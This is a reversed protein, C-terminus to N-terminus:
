RGTNCLKIITQLVKDKTTAARVEELTIASPVSTQSIFEVYEEAIKEERSSRVDKTAPHRSMYDAPNDKGPRFIITLDYSQLRLSWRTIQLPPCPELPKHDTVVTFASGHVYIDFHECAWVVALAERETQSYRSEVDSLARSGYAIPQDDQVLIGAIGVPSADVLIKTEKYPSFYPMATAASLAAKVSNFADTQLQEWKWTADSRTLKCLPETITAFNRIFRASYQAMGLFSCLETPSRLEAGDQLAKVKEPAPALGDASFIYGFFEISPKNFECKTLNVAPSTFDASRKTSHPTTNTRTKAMFWSTTVLM